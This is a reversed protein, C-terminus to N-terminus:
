STGAPAGPMARQRLPNGIVAGFKARESLREAGLGEPDVQRPREVGLGEGPDFGGEGLVRHQHEAVLLEAGAFEGGEASPEAPRLDM